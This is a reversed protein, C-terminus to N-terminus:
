KKRKPKKGNSPPIKGGSAVNYGNPVQTHWSAILARELEYIAWKPGTAIISCFFNDIGEERMANYLPRDTGKEVEDKHDEWRDMPYGSVGIYKMNTTKNIIVYLFCIDAEM